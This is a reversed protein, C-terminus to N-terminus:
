QASHLVFLFYQTDCNVNIIVYRLLKTVLGSCRASIRLLRCRYPRYGGLPPDYVPVLSALRFLKSVTPVRALLGPLDALHFRAFPQLRWCSSCFVEPPYSPSLSALGVTASVSAPLLYPYPKWRKPSAVYHYTMRKFLHFDHRQPILVDLRPNDFGCSYNSFRYGAPWSINNTQHKWAVPWLGM